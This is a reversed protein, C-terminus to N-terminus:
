KSGMRKKACKWCLALEVCTETPTDPLKPLLAPKPPIELNKWMRLPCEENEEFNMGCDCCNEHSILSWKDELGELNISLNEAQTM